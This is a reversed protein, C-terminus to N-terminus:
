VFELQFGGHDDLYFNIVDLEQLIGVFIYSLFEATM